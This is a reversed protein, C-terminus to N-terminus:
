SPLPPADSRGDLRTAIARAAAGNARELYLVAAETRNHVGLKTIINHIHLKVTHESLGLDAAIIKNQQGRAVRSLIGLERVTLDLMAVERGPPANPMAPPINPAPAPHVAAVEDIRVVPRAAKFLSGPFCEGGRLLIRLISLLVDLNVNLPLIGRVMGTDIEHLQSALYRVDEDILIAFHAAPHHRAIEPHLATLEAMQRFDVVILQAEADFGALLLRLDPVCQVTLWSFEREIAAEVASSIVGHSSVFILTRLAPGAAPTMRVGASKGAASERGSYPM